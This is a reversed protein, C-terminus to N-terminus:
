KVDRHILGRGHAEGLAGTVQRLLHVARGPPLPGERKVLEDLSLGPLYEMAYYFTGDDAQGFDYVQATNPHTLEAMAKVEREFRPLNVEDGAVEPRVLKVACRRRLLQHEALYGEGMGGSGLRRILRYQGLRRAEFAKEALVHIKHSGHVAVASLMLLTLAATFWV